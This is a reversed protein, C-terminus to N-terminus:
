CHCSLQGELVTVFSFCKISVLQCCRYDHTIWSFSIYGFIEAMVIDNGCRQVTALNELEDQNMSHDPNHKLPENISELLRGGQSLAM